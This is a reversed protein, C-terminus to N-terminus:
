ASARALLEGLDVVDLDRVGGPPVLRTRALDIEREQEGLHVLQAVLPVDPQLVNRLRVRQARKPQILCIPQWNAQRSSFFAWRRRQRARASTAAYRSYAESPADRAAKCRPRKSCGPHPRTRRSGTLTHVTLVSSHSVHCLDSEDSQPDHALGHDLVQKFAPCSTTTYSTTGAPTCSTTAAPALAAAEDFATASCHASMMVMTGFEGCTFAAMRPGLPTISPALAPERTTSM